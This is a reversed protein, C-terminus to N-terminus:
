RSHTYILFSWTDIFFFFRNLSVSPDTQPASPLAAALRSGPLSAGSASPRRFGGKQSARRHRHCRRRCSSRPSCTLVPRSCPLLVLLSGQWHVTWLSDAPIACALQRSSAICRRKCTCSLSLHRGLASGHSQVSALAGLCASCLGGPNWPM